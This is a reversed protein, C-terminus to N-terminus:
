ALCLHRNIAEDVRQPSVELYAQTTKISSHQLLHRVLEIDCGSAYYIDMAYYKRFSHSGFREFGLYEGVIGLQKEVARECLPFLRALPNIHNEEAYKEIFHYLDAPVVFNRKKGTKKEIIDLRYRGSEYIIDSLRLRLIDSIRVGFNAQVVLLTALRNNPKFESGNHTFGERITKIVLNYQERDLAKTRKNM